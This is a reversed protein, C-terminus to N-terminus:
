HQFLNLCPDTLSNKFVLNKLRRLSQIRATIQAWDAPEMNGAYHADIDLIVPLKDGEMPQTAMTINVANGTAVEVASHQNFFGSFTLNAEDPLRPGLKLYEDLNVSGNVAPLLIRNIFRLRILRVQLPAALHVFLNWTREIEPLYDDLSTYPALRNFSYGQPRLQVLQKEDEALYQLAQLEHRASVKPAEGDKTEFQMEQVFRKRFKPYVDCLRTQASAELSSVDISAPLDCDVDLVAEVIPASTLQLHSDNM